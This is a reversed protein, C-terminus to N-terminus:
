EQEEATLLPDGFALKEYATIYDHALKRVSRVTDRLEDNVTQIVRLNNKLGDNERKLAANEAELQIAHALLREPSVDGNAVSYWYCGDIDWDMGELDTLEQESM